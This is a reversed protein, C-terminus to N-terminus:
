ELQQVLQDACSLISMPDGTGGVGYNRHVPLVVRLRVREFGQILPCSPRDDEADSFGM